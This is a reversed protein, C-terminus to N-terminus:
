FALGQENDAFQPQMKREIFATQFNAKGDPSVTADAIKVAYSNEQEPVFHFDAHGKELTIVNLKNGNADISLKTFTTRTLEDLQITSGNELRVTALGGDSTSVVAGEEIPTNMQAEVSAPAGPPTVTVAGVVFSFRVTRLPSPKQQQSLLAAPPFLLGAVVVV